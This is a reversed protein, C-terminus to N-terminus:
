SFNNKEERLFKMTGIPDGPCKAHAQLAPLAVRMFPNIQKEEGITSPVTPENNKRKEQAWNMKRVIADNNPEASRAYRLNSITYEHGCFVETDEPLNALKEVLSTYMENATGEFFRGCGAIFLTDGSFVVRKGSEDTVYYCIHGRTHCPTHICKVQLSGVKLSDGDAVKKDVSPVREDGAIIVANPVISKMLSNGGAHDSHHHTTLITTLNVGRKKVEQMMKESDVPDIAAAEKTTEDVLLYMYNDGLAPVPFVSLMKRLAFASTAFLKRCINM